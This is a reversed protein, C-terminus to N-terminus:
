YYLGRRVGPLDDEDFFRIKDCVATLATHYTSRDEINPWDLM